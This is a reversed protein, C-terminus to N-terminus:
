LVNALDLRSVTVREEHSKKGELMSDLWFAANWPSGWRENWQSSEEVGETGEAMDYVSM